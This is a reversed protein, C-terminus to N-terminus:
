DASALITHCDCSQRVPQIGSLDCQALMDRVREGSRPNTFDPILDALPKLVFARGALRPHPIQLDEEEILQDGYFIIDLDLTRPGNRITPKRGAEKELRKLYVLLDHPKLLTDAEVVLNLFAPQDLVGWPATEYIPSIRLTQIQPAFSDIARCLNGLRDDLNAGLALYIRQAKTAFKM